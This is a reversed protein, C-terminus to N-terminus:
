LYDKDIMAMGPKGDSGLTPGGSSRAPFLRNTQSWRLAGWRPVAFVHGVDWGRVKELAEVRATMPTLKVVRARFTVSVRWNIQVRAEVIQGVTLAENFTKAPHVSDSM